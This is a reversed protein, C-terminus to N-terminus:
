DTSFLLRVRLRFASSHLRVGSASKAAVLRRVELSLVLGDGKRLLITNM